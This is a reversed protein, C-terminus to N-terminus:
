RPGLAESPRHREWATWEEPTNVNHMSASIAVYTADLQDLVDFLRYRGRQLAHDVVALCDGRWLGCLPHLAGKADRAVICRASGAEEAKRILQALWEPELGPMDCAVIANWYERQRSALAAQIGSLPGCGPYLDDISPWALDQYRRSEGVLTVSGTISAVATAVEEILLHNNVRLRAKDQGM